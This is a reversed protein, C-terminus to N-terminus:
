CGRLRERLSKEDQRLQPEDDSFARRLKSEVTDLQGRLYTCAEAPAAPHCADDVWVYTGAFPAQSAPIHPIPRLGPASVGIGNKGGYADALSRNTMGLMDVPVASRSGVGNDSLYVSGDHRTCLFFAPPPTQMPSEAPAVPAAVSTATDDAAPTPTSPLVPDNQLHVIRQTQGDRCPKDQFSVGNAGSCRYVETAHACAGSAILVLSAALTLAHRM